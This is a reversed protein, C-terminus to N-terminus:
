SRVEVTTIGPEEAFEPMVPLAEFLRSLITEGLDADRSFEQGLLLAIPRLDTDTRIVLLDAFRELSLPIAALERSRDSVFDLPRAPPQSNAENWVQLAEAPWDMTLRGAVIAPDRFIHLRATSALSDSYPRTITARLQLSPEFLARVGIQFHMM